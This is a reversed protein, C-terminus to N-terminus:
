AFAVDPDSDRDRITNFKSIREKHEAAIEVESGFRRKLKELIVSLAKDPKHGIATKFTKVVKMAEGRSHSKLINIRDAAPFALKNM